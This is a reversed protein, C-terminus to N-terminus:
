CHRNDAAAKQPPRQQKSGLLVARGQDKGLLLSLTLFAGGALANQKARLYTTASSAMQEPNALANHKARLYTTASSAMQEPNALANQTARFYSTASPDM